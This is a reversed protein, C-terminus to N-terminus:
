VVRCAAEPDVVSQQPSAAQNLEEIITRGLVRLQRLQEDSDATGVHRVVRQRIKEGDRVSRVIQVRTKGYPTTKTRIFM